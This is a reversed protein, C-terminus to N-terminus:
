PGARTRGGSCGPDSRTCGAGRPDLGRFIEGRSRADLRFINGPMRSHGRLLSEDVVELVRYLGGMNVDWTIRPREEAVASLLAALHYITGVDHQRVAHDIERIHTCDVHEFPGDGPAHVPPM